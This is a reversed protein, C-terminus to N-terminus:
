EVRVIKKGIKVERMGFRGDACGRASYKWGADFVRYSAVHAGTFSYWDCAGAAHGQGDTTIVCFDIVEKCGQTGAVPEAGVRVCAFLVFLVFAVLIAVIARNLWKEDETM